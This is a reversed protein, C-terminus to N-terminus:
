MTVQVCHLSSTPHHINLFDKDLAFTIHFTIKNEYLGNSALVTNASQESFLQISWKCLHFPEKINM